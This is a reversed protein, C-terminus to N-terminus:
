YGAASQMAWLHAAALARWPAFAALWDRTQAETPKDPLGLLVQLNRRVAADGHLSGDLWGFGRLLAYNVTWPGIGRVQLLQARLLEVPPADAWPDLPLQGAEVLRSLTLLCDSKSRSFGAARLAVEDLGALRGADPYCWLGSSHQVGAAVILKRRAAVAAGVSIQQGTVAWSLAEFPTATLPVRLGPQRAILPGLQPHAGHAAEFAEVPQELGLMRRVLRQLRVDADAGAEGDVALSVEVRGAAFRLGLRAAQGDWVLGKDLSDGNVREALMAPDRRHFALIDAPRFAPPLDIVGDLTAATPSSVHM